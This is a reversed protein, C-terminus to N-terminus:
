LANTVHEEYLLIQAHALYHCRLGNIPRTVTFEGESLQVELDADLM